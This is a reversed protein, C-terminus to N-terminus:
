VADLRKLRLIAELEMAIHDLRRGLIREVTQLRRTLTRRDLRLAAAASSINRDCSFYASLAEDLADGGERHRNLPELYIRRLSDVLLGDRLMSALLAVERYRAVREPMRIAVSHAARAQRHSLRWGDLGRAPEGIAVTTAPPPPSALLEEVRAPDLGSSCALWGWALGQEPRVLLLPKGLLGALSRIAGVAGPGRAILALHHAELEYELDSTDIPEGDLLRRVRGARREETTSKYATAEREHEESVTAILRDFVAAYGRLIRKLAADTFLDGQEAEEIVFETFMAYGAVYRRLVIDLGVGNRAAMRAQATLSTPVAPARREGLRLAVLAYDLAAALSVRLGEVYSPDATEAPTSIGFVRAALAEEIEGRRALVRAHLGARAGDLSPAM